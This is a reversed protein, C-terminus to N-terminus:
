QRRAVRFEESVRRPLPATRDEVVAAAQDRPCPPRALTCGSM